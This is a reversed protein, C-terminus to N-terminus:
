IKQKLTYQQDILRRLAEIQADSFYRKAFIFMTTGDYFLFLKKSEKIFKFSPWQHLWILYQGSIKVEDLSFHAVYKNGALNRWPYGHLGALYPSIWLITIYFLYTAFPLVVYPYAWDPDFGKYTFPVVCLLIASGLLAPLMLIPRQSAKTIIANAEAFDRRTIEYTIEVADM